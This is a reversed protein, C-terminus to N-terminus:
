NNKLVDDLILMFEEESKGGVAESILTGNSKFFMMTPFGKIKHVERARKELSKDKIPDLKLCVFNQNMTEAIDSNTYVSEDMIKCPACGKTSYKLFVQKGEQRAKEFAQEFSIDLFIVGEKDQAYCFELSLFLLLAIVLNKM